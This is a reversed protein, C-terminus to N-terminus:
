SFFMKKQMQFEDNKRSFHDCKKCFLFYFRERLALISNQKEIQDNPFPKQMLTQKM